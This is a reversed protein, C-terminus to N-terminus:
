RKPGTLTREASDSVSSKLDDPGPTETTELLTTKASTGRFSFRFSPVNPHEGPVVVLVLTCECTGGSCFGSRPYM